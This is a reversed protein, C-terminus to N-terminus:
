QAQSIREVLDERSGKGSLGLEKAKTRLENYQMKAVPTEHAPHPPEGGPTEQHPVPPTPRPTRGKQRLAHKRERSAKQTEYSDKTQLWGLNLHSQLVHEPWAEAEPIPEGSKVRRKGVKLERKNYGVVYTM